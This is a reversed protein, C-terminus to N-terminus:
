RKVAQLVEAAAATVSGFGGDKAAAELSSFADAPLKGAAGMRGLAECAACRVASFPDQLLRAVESAHELGAQGMRALAFAAAARVEVESDELRASARGALGAAGSGMSGLALLCAARVAPRPDEMLKGVAQAHVAGQCAVEADGARLQEAVAVREIDYVSAIKRGVAECLRTADMSAELAKAADAGAQMIVAKVAASTSSASACELCVEAGNAETTIAEELARLFAEQIDKFSRLFAYDLGYITLSVVVASRGGLAGLAQLGALVAEDQPRRLLQLVKGSVLLPQPGAVDALALAAACRVNHESDALMATMKKIVGADLDAGSSGIDGLAALASVRVSPDEDKLRELVAKMHLHGPGGMEALAELCALRM